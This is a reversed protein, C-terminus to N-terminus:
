YEGLTSCGFHRWVEAAHIYEDEEIDSEKLTSYFDKKRPLRDEELKRLSDTYEYPYVGKRTVLPM